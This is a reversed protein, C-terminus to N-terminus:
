FSNKTESEIKKSFLIKIKDVISFGLKNEIKRGDIELVPTLEGMTGTTFVEDANYFETLSLNKEIIRINNEHCLEIVIGRTIGPLCSDAHPTYVLGNNVLFINTANTESVFGNLDLMIADDADSLNAQIKALINNILNNHHIKSDVSQAPNRRIASTILRIGNSPYVPPKWEAIIILCCGSKNFAPSMGSTIKEGRTLTLRIHVNDKMGNASLTEFIKEKIWDSSPINEFMMAKASQQLRTLHRDLAFVNGNYVRLGEWVADGGQVVSDFVSIKAESRPYLKDKVFIVIEKNRPDIENNM